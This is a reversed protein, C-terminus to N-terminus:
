NKCWFTLDRGLLKSLNEIEPLMEIQLKKKLVPDMGKSKVEPYNIKNYIDQSYPIKRLIKKASDPTKKFLIQLQKSRYARRANQIEFTPQFKDDIELFNCTNKYVKAVDKVMDDFIIIFIQEKDFHDLYKKVMGAYRAQERYFLHPHYKKPDLSSEKKRSDEADLADELNEYTEMTENLM